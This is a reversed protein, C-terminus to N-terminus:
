WEWEDLDFRTAVPADLVGGERYEVMARVADAWGQRPPVIGKILIGGERLELEVEDGLGSHELLVKPLRIGRSRGIRIIRARVKAEL